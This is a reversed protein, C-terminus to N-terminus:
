CHFYQSCQTTKSDIVNRNLHTQVLLRLKQLVLLRFSENILFQFYDKLAPMPLYLSITKQTNWIITSGSWRVNILYAPMGGFMSNTWLAEEGTLERFEVTEQNAGKGQNIDNQDMVKGEFIIPRYMFISIILFTVVAIIHPLAKRLVPSSSM